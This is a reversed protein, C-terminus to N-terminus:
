KVAEFKPLFQTSIHMQVEFSIKKFTDLDKEPYNGLKARMLIRNLAFFIREDDIYHYIYRHEMFRDFFSLFQEVNSINNLRFFLEIDATSTKELDRYFSEACDPENILILRDLMLEYLIHAVFFLRIGPYILENEEFKKRIFVVNDHFSSLHHFIGDVQLHKQCGQVLDNYDPDSNDTFHLPKWSRNISGLLDPFVLGFNYYPHGEKQGAYYHSLMNM